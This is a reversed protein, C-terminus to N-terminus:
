RRSRKAPPPSGMPLTRAAPGYEEPSEPEAHSATPSDPQAYYGAAPSDNAARMAQAAFSLNRRSAPLAGHAPALSAAPQATGPWPTDAHPPGFTQASAPATSGTSLPEAASPQASAPPSPQPLRGIECGDADRWPTTALFHYVELRERLEASDGIAIRELEARRAAVAAVDGAFNSRLMGIDDGEMLELPSLPGTYLGNRDLEDRRAQLERCRVEEVAHEERTDCAPCEGPLGMHTLSEEFQEMHERSQFRLQRLAFPCWCTYGLFAAGRPRNLAQALAEARSAAAAALGAPLPKSHGPMNVAPTPPPTTTSVAAAAAHQALSRFLVRQFLVRRTGKRAAFNAYV